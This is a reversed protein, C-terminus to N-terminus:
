KPLYLLLYPDPCLRQYKERESSAAVGPFDGSHGELDLILQFHLHPPWDGNEPYPGLETFSAGKEISQGVRLGQLSRRSLHGYLTYLTHGELEHSLIITPGYDGFAANDQFSHVKAKLPTHVETFAPAWIDIGLHIRRNEDGDFVDSRSYIPRNEMYGGIGMKGGRAEISKTIYQHFAETNKM